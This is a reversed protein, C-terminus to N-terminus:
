FTRPLRCSQEIYRYLYLSTNCLIPTKFLPLANIAAQDLRGGSGRPRGLSGTRGLSREGTATSVPDAFGLVIWVTRDSVKNLRRLKIRRKGVRPTPAFAPLHGALPGIGSGLLM